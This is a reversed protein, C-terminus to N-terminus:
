RRVGDGVGLGGVDVGEVLEGRLHEGDAERARGLVEVREDREVALEVAPQDREGVLGREGGRERAGDM